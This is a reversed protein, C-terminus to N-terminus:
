SLLLTNKSRLSTRAVNKGCYHLELMYREVKSAAMLLARLVKHEDVVIECYSLEKSVHDVIEAKTVISSLWIAYITKHFQPDVSQKGVLLCLLLLLERCIVELFGKM